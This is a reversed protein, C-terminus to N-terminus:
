DLLFLVAKDTHDNYNRETEHLWYNTYGGRANFPTPQTWAQTTSYGMADGDFIIAFIGDQEIASTSTTVTGSTNIRSPKLNISDPTKIAQWYNVVEFDGVTLLSKHYTDALVMSTTMDKASNLMYVRQRDKPTHQMIPKGTINTQYMLSRETMLESVSNIRAYVFKMFPAFNGPQYVTSSTLSLGTMTNYETLLHVVRDSDNEALLGGIFNALTGRAIEERYQELKSTSNTMIMQVFEALQDPGRFASDLQDKYITFWDSFVNSGYFNTQLIVPKRQVYMDVSQGDGTAPDQTADYGVPWKYRDDEVLPRDSIKLKRVWNGWQSETKELGSLKRSYPRISMITRSLVQNIANIVPDYGTALATTAQTVFSATDTATLSAQGTAQQTIANLLSAVQNFSMTNVAM